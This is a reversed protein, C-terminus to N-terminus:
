ASQGVVALYYLVGFYNTLSGAMIWQGTQPFSKGHQCTTKNGTTESQGAHGSETKGLRGRGIADFSRPFTPMMRLGIRAEIRGSGCSKFTVAARVTERM